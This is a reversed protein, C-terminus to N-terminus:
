SSNGDEDVQNKTLKELVSVLMKMVRWDNDVWHELKGGEFGEYPIGFNVMLTARVEGLQRADYALKSVIKDLEELMKQISQSSQDLKSEELNQRVANWETPLEEESLKPM